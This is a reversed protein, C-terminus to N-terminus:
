FFFTKQVVDPLQFSVALDELVPRVVVARDRHLLLLPPGLLLDGGDGGPLVEM